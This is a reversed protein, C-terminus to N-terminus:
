RTGTFGPHYPLQRHAAALVARRGDRMVGHAVKEAILSWFDLADGYGTEPIAWAPFGARSLVTKAAPVQFADALALVEEATLQQETM